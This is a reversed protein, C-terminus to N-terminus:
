LEQSNKIEEELQKSLTEVFLKREKMIEEKNKLDKNGKELKM